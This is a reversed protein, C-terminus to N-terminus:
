ALCYMLSEAQIEGAYRARSTYFTAEDMTEGPSLNCAELASKGAKRREQTLVECRNELAHNPVLWDKHGPSTPLM